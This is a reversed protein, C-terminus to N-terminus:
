FIPLEAAPLAKWDLIDVSTCDFWAGGPETAGQWEFQAPPARAEVEGVLVRCRDSLVVLVEVKGQERRVDQCTGWVCSDGKVIVLRDKDEAFPALDAEEETALAAYDQYATSVKWLEVYQPIDWLQVSGGDGAEEAEELEGDADDGASDEEEEESNKWEEGEEDSEDRSRALM